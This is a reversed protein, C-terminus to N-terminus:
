QKGKVKIKAPPAAPKSETKLKKAPPAAVEEGGDKAAKAAAKEEKKQALLVEWSAKKQAEKEARVGVAKGEAVSIQKALAKLAAEAAKKEAEKQVKKGTGDVADGKFKKLGGLCKIVLMATTKEDKETTAYELADKGICGGTLLMLAVNLKSKADQGGVKKEGDEEGEEEAAKRKLKNFGKNSTPIGGSRLEQFFDPFEAEVAVMAANDEAAGKSRGPEGAYSDSFKESSVTAVFSQKPPDVQEISYSIDGKAITKHEGLYAEQLQQRWPRLKRAEDFPASPSPAPAQTQNMNKKAEKFFSPFEKALAAKAAADEAAKKGNGQGSYTDEFKECSITCQFGNDTNDTTYVITEKTMMEKHTKAYAQGLHSKWGIAPKTPDGGIGSGKGGGKAAMVMSFMMEMLGQKGKGSGKMMKM